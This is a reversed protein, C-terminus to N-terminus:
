QLRTLGPAQEVVRPQVSAWILKEVEELTHDADIVRWRPWYSEGLKQFVERV